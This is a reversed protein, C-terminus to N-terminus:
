SLFGELIHKLDSPWGILTCVFFAKLIRLQQHQERILEFLRAMGIPVEKFVADCLAWRPDIHSEVQREVAEFWEQSIDDAIRRNTLHICPEDHHIIRQDRYFVTNWAQKWHFQIHQCHWHNEWTLRCQGIACYFVPYDHIWKETPFQILQCEIDKASAVLIKSM